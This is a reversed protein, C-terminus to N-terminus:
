PRPLCASLIRAHANIAEVRTKISGMLRRVLEAAPSRPSAFTRAGCLGRARVEGHAHACLLEGEELGGEAL